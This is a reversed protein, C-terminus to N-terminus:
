WGKFHETLSIVRKLVLLVSLRAAVVVVAAEELRVNEKV